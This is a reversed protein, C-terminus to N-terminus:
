KINRVMNNGGGTQTHGGGDVRNRGDAGLVLNSIPEGGKILAQTPIVTLSLLVKIVRLVHAGGVEGGVKGVGGARVSEIRECLAILRTIVLNTM